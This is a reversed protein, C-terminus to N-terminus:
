RWRIAEGILHAVVVVIARRGRHNKDVVCHIEFYYKKKRAALELASM